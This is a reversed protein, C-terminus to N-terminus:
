QGARPDTVRLKKTPVSAGTVQDSRENHWTSRSVSGREQGEIEIAGPLLPVSGEM